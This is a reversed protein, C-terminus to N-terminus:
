LKLLHVMAALLLPIVPSLLSLRVFSKLAKVEKDLVGSNFDIGKKVQHAYGLMLDASTQQLIEKRALWETPNTGPAWYPKPLWTAKILRMSLGILCAVQGMCFVHAPLRWEALHDLTQNALFAILVGALALAQLARGQLKERDQLVTANLMEFKPLLFDMADKSVDGQSFVPDEM